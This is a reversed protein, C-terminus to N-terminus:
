RAIRKIYPALIQVADLIDVGIVVPNTPPPNPPCALLVANYATKVNGNFTAVVSPQLATATPCIEDLVTQVQSQAQPTLQGNACGVLLAPVLALSAAGILLRKM